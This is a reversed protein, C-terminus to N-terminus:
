SKKTLLYNIQYLFKWIKNVLLRFSINKSKKNKFESKSTLILKFYNIGFMLFFILYEIKIIINSCVKKLMMFM